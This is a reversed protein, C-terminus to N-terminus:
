SPYGSLVVCRENEGPFTARHSCEWTIREQVQQDQNKEEAQSLLFGEALVVAQSSTEAGCERVWDGMEPPLVALLRELIMLDLMEKKSHSEPKLWQHCLLHLRGCVVRPGEAKQYCFQRFQQRHVDPPIIENDRPNTWVRGDRLKRRDAGPVKRAEPGAADPKKARWVAM